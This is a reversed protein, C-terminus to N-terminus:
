LQCRRDPLRVSRTEAAFVTCRYPNRDCNEGKEVKLYSQDKTAAWSLDAAADGTCKATFETRIVAESRSVVECSVKRHVEKKQEICARRYRDIEDSQAVAGESLIIVGLLWAVIRLM